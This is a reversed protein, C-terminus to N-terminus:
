LVLAARKQGLKGPHHPIVACLRTAGRGPNRRRFSGPGGPRMGKVPSWRSASPGQHSAPAMGSQLRGPRPPIPSTYRATSVRSSRLTAILIQAWCEAVTELPLGARDGRQIMWMNTGQVINTRIVQHHLQHLAVRQRRAKRLPAKGIILRQAVADLDGVCQGLRM